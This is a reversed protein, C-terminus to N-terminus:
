YKFTGFNLISVTARTLLHIMWFRHPTIISKFSAKKRIGMAHSKWLNRANTISSLINTKWYMGNPRERAGQANVRMMLGIM